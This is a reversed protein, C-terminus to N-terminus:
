KGRERCVFAIDNIFCSQRAAVFTKALCTVFSLIVSLQYDVCSDDKAIESIFEMFPQITFIIMLVRNRLSKNLPRNTEENVVSRLLPILISDVNDISVYGIIDRLRRHGEYRTDDLVSLLEAKSEYSLMGDIFRKAQFTTKMEVNADKIFKTFTRRRGDYSRTNDNQQQGSRLSRSHGQNKSGKKRPM